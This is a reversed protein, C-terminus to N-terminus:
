AFHSEDVDVHPNKQGVEGVVDGEFDLGELFGVAFGLALGLLFGVLFGVTSGVIIGVTSDDGEGM